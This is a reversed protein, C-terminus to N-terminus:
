AARKIGAAARAARMESEPFLALWQRATFQSCHAHLCHIMGIQEGPGPPFLVTADAGDTDTSHQARNPCLVIWGGRPADRGIAGRARLLWFLLGEGSAASPEFPRASRERFAKSARQAREVDAQEADIVLAGISHPDGWTPWNEPRSGSDRTAHPLRFLRQWDHCAPDSIIGFRRELYAVAVAYVRSWEVADDQVRLLTPERQQYVIRAGGRTEYYYPSPHVAALAQVKARLESRWQESAAHGPGDVDFVIVTLEIAGLADIAERTLRRANPTHYAAFHSDTRYERELAAGLDLAYVREGDPNRPWGPVYRNRMVTIV